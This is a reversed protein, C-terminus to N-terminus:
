KGTTNCFNMLMQAVEARTANGKPDLIGNGKGSLIGNSVAWQMATQAYESVSAADSFASLDGAAAPSGVYRYLMSALQERTISGNPNSGDSIGKTMAWSMGKEYWVSGGATDQGDLRALVTWLMARTTTENPAFTSAGTGSMLGKEAVYQVAQYFWDNATVDAFTPAENTPQAGEAEFTAEIEVKSDPMKFTYKGDGKDTLKVTDGDKDTVTLEDLVYGADPKVTITVTDGEEANKPSVTISGNKISSAKSISYTKSGSSSSSSSSSSSRRTVTYTVVGNNDTSTKMKYKSGATITVTHGDPDIQFTKAENVTASGDALAKITEGEAVADVANQLTAYNTTGIQAAPAATTITFTSFGHPNVFTITQKGDTGTTVDAEYVYTVGNKEHQVYLTTGEAVTFSSPLAMSIEVPKDVKLEQAKGVVKSNSPDIDEATAATSVVIEYKPTIELVLENKDTDYAKPEVAMFTTVYITATQDESVQLGNDVAAQKLDAAQADTISKATENAIEAVEPAAISGAAALVEQKKEDPITNPLKSADPVDPESVVPKVPVIDDTKDAVMYSYGAKDSVTSVKGDALYKAPDSTFYGGSIFKECDASTVVGKFYGDKVVITVDNPQNAQPDAESLAATGIFTGNNITVTIPHKTTHQAIALAANSTTTGNGNPVVELPNNGGELIANGEVTLTGARVEIGTKGKFSGGIIKTSGNSALYAAHGEEATADVHDLVLTTDTLSGNTSVAYSKSTISGNKLTIKAHDCGSPVLITSDSTDSLTHGNLDLTFTTYPKYLQIGTEDKLLVIEDNVQTLESDNESAITTANTLFEYGINGIKASFKSELLIAYNVSDTGRLYGDALYDLVSERLADSPMGGTLKGNQTSANGISGGSLVLTMNSVKVNTTLFEALTASSVTLAHGGGRIEAGALVNVNELTANAVLSIPAGAAATIATALDTSLVNGASTSVYAVAGEVYGDISKVQIPYDNVNTDTNRVAEHGPVIFEAIADASQFYGGTISVQDRKSADVTILDNETYSGGEISIWGNCNANTGQVVNGNVAVGDKLILKGNSGFAIQVAYPKSSATNSISGGEITARGDASPVKVQVAAYGAYNSNVTCNEMTIDDGALSIVYYYKSSDSPYNATCNKLVVKSAKNVGTTMSYYTNTRGNFVCDTASFVSKDGISVMGNVTCDKLTLTSSQKSKLAQASSGTNTCEITGNQITVSKGEAVVITADNASSKFTKSNLDLTINKDITTWTNSEANDLLKIEVGDTAAEIAESLSDYTKEGIQAVANTTDDTESTPAVGADQDVQKNDPLDNSTDGPTKTYPDNEEGSPKKEGDPVPPDEKPIEEPNVEPAEVTCGAIDVSCVPCEPNMSEETCMIACTCKPKEDPANPAQDDPGDALAAPLMTFVMSLTLLMSLLRKNTAKM